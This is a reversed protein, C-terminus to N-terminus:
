EVRLENRLFELIFRWATESDAERYYKGFSENMFFHDAEPLIHFEHRVDHTTLHKDFRDVMDLPLMHDKGGFIGLFPCRVRDVFDASALIHTIDPPIGPWMRSYCNVIAALDARRGALVLGYRGGASYGLLAVRAADVEPRAMLWDLCRGMDIVQRDDDLQRIWAMIEETQRLKPAGGLPAYLDIALAAFGAAALRRAANVMSPRFGNLEHAVLVAPFPGPGDPLALWGAIEGETAAIRHETAPRTQFETTL